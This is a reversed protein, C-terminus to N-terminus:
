YLLGGRGGGEEECLAKRGEGRVQKKVATIENGLDHAVV